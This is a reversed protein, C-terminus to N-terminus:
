RRSLCCVPTGHVHVHIMQRSDEDDGDADDDSKVQVGPTIAERSLFEAFWEADRAAADRMREM